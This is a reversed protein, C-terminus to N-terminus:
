TEGERVYFRTVTGAANKSIKLKWGAHILCDRAILRDRQNVEHQAKQCAHLLCDNITVKGPGSDHRLELRDRMGDYPRAKPNKLWPLIVDDFPGGAYRTEQEAALAAAFEPTDAHWPEGAQYRQFAEAWIMDRDAKLKEIDAKPRTIGCTVSWYRRGGSSDTLPSSDNSTAAFVCTRKVKKAAVEYPPRFTDVPQTLFSKRELESRHTIFEGLEAIWCGCLEIKSEKSALDSLDAVFYPGALVRLTSSKGLGQPGILVLTADAQCGPVSARACAQILWKAGMTANVPSAEAGLYDHLWSDLRPMGDWTLTALYRQIPNYPNTRAIAKVVALTLVPSTIGVGHGQLWLFTRTTDDNDWARESKYPPWPPPQDTEVYLTLENFTLVNQWEPSHRLFLDANFTSPKLEGSKTRQLQEQWAPTPEYIERLAKWGELSCPDHLCGADLGGDPFQVVFATKTHEPNLPCTALIYKTGGKWPAQSELAIGHKALWAAVDLATSHSKGTIKKPAAEPILAPVSELQEQTVTQIEAPIELLRSVRHPREPSSDGKCAMTGYIKWIRAANGVATDIETQADTFKQALAALVREVLVRSPEDNPLEIRYLLNAGNGSDGALPLPWGQLTLWAKCEQAKALASAHEADTSSIGAPIRPDFDLPLWRRCVIDADKTTEKVRCKTRNQARSLLAPNVPNLTFYIAPWHGSWEAARSALNEWNYCDFYGANTGYHANPVRLEHVGGPALLVLLASHIEAAQSEVAPVAAAATV